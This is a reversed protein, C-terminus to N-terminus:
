STVASLTSSFAMFSGYKQHPKDMGVGRWGVQQHSEMNLSCLLIIIKIKGIQMM